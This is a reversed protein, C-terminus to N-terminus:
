DFNQIVMTTLEGFAICTVRTSTVGADVNMLGDILTGGTGVVGATGTTTLPSLASVANAVLIEFYGFGVFFWGFYNDTMAIDPVGLHWMKTDQLTTTVPQGDWAVYPDEDRAFMVVGGAALAGNAKGYRWKKGYIDWNVEGMKAQPTSHQVSPDFFTLQATM